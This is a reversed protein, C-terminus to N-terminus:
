AKVGMADHQFSPSLVLRAKSAELCAFQDPEGECVNDYSKLMIEISDLVSVMHYKVVFFVNSDGPWRQKASRLLPLVYSRTEEIYSLLKMKSFPGAMSSVNHCRDFLKTITAPRSELMSRYYRDLADAKEEGELMFFTVLSVSHQVESGVPLEEPFVGCDECVDHLLITAIVEDDRIGLALADCAMTLPHAIYPEGSKRLQGDHMERAYSLAKLTEPMEAGSAFGRVYTYMKEASFM